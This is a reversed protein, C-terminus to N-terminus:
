PIRPLLFLRQTSSFSFIFGWIQLTAFLVTREFLLLGTNLLLIHLVYYGPKEIHLWRAQEIFEKKFSLLATTLAFCSDPPNSPSLISLNREQLDTACSSSRQPFTINWWKQPQSQKSETVLMRHSQPCIQKPSITPTVCMSLSSFSHPIAQEPKTICYLQMYVLTPDSDALLLRSPLSELQHSKKHVSTKIFGIKHPLNATNEIEYSIKTLTLWIKCIRIGRSLNPHDM